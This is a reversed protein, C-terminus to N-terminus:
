EHVPPSRKSRCVFPLSTGLRLVPVDAEHPVEDFDSPFDANREGGVAVACGSLRVKFASAVNTYSTSPNNGFSTRDFERGAHLCCM